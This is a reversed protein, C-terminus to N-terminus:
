EAIQLDLLALANERLIIRKSEDDIEAADIRARQMATSYLPSDTGFLMLEAGIEGVAWEILGSMLNQASSTDVYVNDHRSEEIARVQHTPDGDCGNGLHALILTMEPFEDAFSVCVDPMSNPDGSHTLMVAKHRAAFEFLAQGHEKIPYDHEEPHIKIGVCYPLALMQAAQEYSQPQLPNVIVWQRMGETQGIIKEAEDNGEIADAEYRPLLGTLPSAVTVVVNSQRAREVVGPADCSKLVDAFDNVGRCFAGYHAHVDIAQVDRIDTM